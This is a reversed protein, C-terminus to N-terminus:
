SVFAYVSWGGPTCHQFFLVTLQQILCLYFLVRVQFLKALMSGSCFGELHACCYVRDPFCPWAGIWAGAKLRVYFRLFRILLRVQSWFLVPLRGFSSILIIALVGGPGLSNGPPM